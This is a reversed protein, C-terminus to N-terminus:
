AASKRLLEGYEEEIIIHNDDFDLLLFGLKDYATENVEDLIIQIMNNSESEIQDFEAEPNEKTAIAHIVQKAEYSLSDFYERWQEGLLEENFLKDFTSKVDGSGHEFIYDLEDRFDDEVALTDGEISLIEYGLIHSAKINIQSVLTNDFQVMPSTWNTKALKAFIERGNQEIESLLKRVENIDTLLEKEKGATEQVENVEDEVRLLSRVSDSQARLDDLKKHDISLKVQDNQKTKAEPNGYERNIFRQIFTTMSSDLKIGRLRGRHGTLERLCNESYRVIEQVLSRLEFDSSYPKADISITSHSLLCVASSYIQRQRTQSKKPGFNNLLGTGKQKRIARDIMQIVKPIADEVLAQNGNLFFKSKTIQHDCLASILSFPLLLPEENDFDSIMADTMISPRLQMHGFQEWLDFQLKHVRTFDFIWNILYNELKPFRDRYAKFLAILQTKGEVPTSWGIENLLEYIHVFIYSLDTDLYRGNRVQSRWYFYWKKQSNNMSRYTPWYAMFPVHTAEYGIYNEKKKAEKFFREDHMGLNSRKLKSENLSSSNLNVDSIKEVPISQQPPIQQKGEPKGAIRVDVFGPSSIIAEQKKTITQKASSIIDFSPAELVEVDDYLEARLQRRKIKYKRYISILFPILILIAIPRTAVDSFLLLILIGIVVKKKGLKKVISRLPAIVASSFLVFPLFMIKRNLDSRNERSSSKTRKRSMSFVGKNGQNNMLIKAYELLYLVKVM